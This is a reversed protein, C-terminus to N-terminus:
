GRTRCIILLEDEGPSIDITIGLVQRNIVNQVRHRIVTKLEEWQKVLLGQLMREGEEERVLQKEAQSLIGKARYIILDDVSYVRCFGPTRETYEVQIDYIVQALPEMNSNPQVQRLDALNNMGKIFSNINVIM